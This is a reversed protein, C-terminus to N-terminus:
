SWSGGRETACLLWRDRTHGCSRAFTTRTKRNLAASSTLCSSALYLPQSPLRHHQLAVAQLRVPQLFAQWRRRRLPLIFARVGGGPAAPAAAATATATPAGAARDHFAAACNPGMRIHSRADDVKHQASCYYAVKCVSCFERLPRGDEQEYVGCTVCSMITGPLKSPASKKFFETRFEDATLICTQLLSILRIMVNEFEAARAAGAAEEGPRLFVKRGFLHSSIHFHLGEGADDQKLMRAVSRVHSLSTAAVSGISPHACADMLAPMNSDRIINEICIEPCLLAIGHVDEPQGRDNIFFPFQPSEPAQPHVTIWMNRRVQTVHSASLPQTHGCPRRVQQQMKLWADSLVVRYKDWFKHLARHMALAQRVDQM